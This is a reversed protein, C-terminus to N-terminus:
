RGAGACDMWADVPGAAALFARMSQEASPQGPIADEASLILTATTRERLLLRDLINRLKLSSNRGTLLDGSRYFTEALRHVPGAT